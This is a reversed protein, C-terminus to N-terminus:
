LDNPCEIHNGILYQEHDEVDINLIQL